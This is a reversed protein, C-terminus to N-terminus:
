RPDGPLAEFIWRDRRASWGFRVILRNRGELDACRIQFQFFGEDRYEAFVMPFISELAAQVSVASVGPAHILRSLNLRARSPRPIPASM